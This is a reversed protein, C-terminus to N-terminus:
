SVPPELWQSFSLSEVGSQTLSNVTQPIYGANWVSFEKTVPTLIGGLETKAPLVLLSNFLISGYSDLLYGTTYQTPGVTTASTGNGAQHDTEPLDLLKYKVQSHREVDNDWALIDLLRGGDSIWGTIM